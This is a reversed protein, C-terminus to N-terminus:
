THLFSPLPSNKGQLCQVTCHLENWVNWKILAPLLLASCQVFNRSCVMFIMEYKHAGSILASLVNVSTTYM